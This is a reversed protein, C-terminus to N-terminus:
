PTHRYYCPPYHSPCTPLHMTTHPRPALSSHSRSRMNAPPLPYLPTHAKNKGFAIAAQTAARFNQTTATGTALLGKQLDMVKSASTYYTAYSSAMLKMQEATMGSANGSLIIAKELEASAQAAKYLSATFGGVIAAVGLISLGTASFVKGMVGTYNALTLSTQSLRGYNGMLIDTGMRGMERRAMASNLTLKHTAEGAKDLEQRMGAIKGSFLVY